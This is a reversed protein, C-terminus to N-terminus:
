VKKAIVYMIDYINLYIHKNKILPAIRKYLANKGNRIVLIYYFIFDLSRYFGCYEFHVVKFGNKELLQTLTRKSFYHIHTPPHILRWRRKRIKAVVSEIDGTTIALLSDKEMIEGFKKVYLHPQSLHEITDWMCGVYINSPLNYNLFDATQVNLKLTNRAYNIGEEHIDLGLVKQYREKTIDLFFGYACGIEFLIKHSDENRYKELVELRAQFNKKIVREEALYDFYEEGFFYNRKYLNYLDEDSISLDAVVHSCNQCKILGQYLSSFSSNECVICQKVVTEM